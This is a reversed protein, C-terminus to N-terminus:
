FFNSLWAPHACLQRVIPHEEGNEAVPAPFLKNQCDVRSAYFVSWEGAYRLRHKVDPM